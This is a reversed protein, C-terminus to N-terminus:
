RVDPFRERHECWFWVAAAAGSLAGLIKAYGGDFIVDILRMLSRSPVNRFLWREVFDYLFEGVLGAACGAIIGLCLLRCLSGYRVCSKTCNFVVAFLLLIVGLLPLVIVPTLLSRIM